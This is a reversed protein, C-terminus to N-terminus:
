IALANRDSGGSGDINLTGRVIPRQNDRVFPPDTDDLLDSEWGVEDSHFQFTPMLRHAYAARYKRVVLHVLLAVLAVILLTVVPVVAFYLTYQSFSPTVLESSGEAEQVTSLTSKPVSTLARNHDRSLGDM